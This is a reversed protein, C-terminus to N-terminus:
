SKKKDLLKRTEKDFDSNIRQTKNFIKYEQFAKDEAQKKSVKGKDDLIKFEHFHIFKDVSEALDRM